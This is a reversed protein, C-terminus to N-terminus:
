KEKVASTSVNQVEFASSPASHSAMAKAKPDMMSLNPATRINQQTTEPKFETTM